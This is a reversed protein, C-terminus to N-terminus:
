NPSTSSQLTAHRGADLRGIGRDTSQGTALLQKRVAKKRKMKEAKAKTMGETVMYMHESRREKHFPPIVAKLREFFFSTQNKFL